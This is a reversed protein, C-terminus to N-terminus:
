LVKQGYIVDFNIHNMTFNVKNFGEKIYTIGLILKIPNADPRFM